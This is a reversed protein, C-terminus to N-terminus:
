PWYLRRFSSIQQRSGVHQKHYTRRSRHSKGCATCTAGPDTYTCTPNAVHSIATPTGFQSSAAGTHQRIRRPHTASADCTGAPFGNQSISARKNFEYSIATSDKDYLSIRPPQSCAGVTLAYSPAARLSCATLLCHFLSTRLFAFFLVIQRLLSPFLATLEPVLHM